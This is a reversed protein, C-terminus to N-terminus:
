NSGTGTWPTLPYPATEGSNWRKIAAAWTKSPCDPFRFINHRVKRSLAFPCHKCLNNNRQLVPKDNYVNMGLMKGMNGSLPCFTFGERDFCRGCQKMTGCPYKDDVLGEEMGADVPSVLFPVHLDAKSSVPSTKYRSKAPLDPGKVTGNTMVWVKGVNKHTVAINVIEKLWPVLTPEGGGIKLKVIPINHDAVCDLMAKVQACTVADENFKAVDMLRNCYQCRMNCTNTVNIYYNM